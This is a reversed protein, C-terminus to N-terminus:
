KAFTIKGWRSFNELNESYLTSWSSAGGNPTNRVINAYVTMGPTVAKDPILNKMPVAIYITFNDPKIDTKYKGDFQWKGDYAADNTAFKGYEKFKGVPTIALSVFPKQQKSAFFLQLTDDNLVDTSKGIFLNKTDCKETYKIYLTKGDHMLFVNRGSKGPFGFVTRLSRVKYAKDWPANAPDKLDAIRPVTITPLPRNRFQEKKAYEARGRLMPEWLGKILIKLREKELPTKALKQAEKIYGALIKMNKASGLKGWNIDDPQFTHNKFPNAMMAKVDRYEDPYNAPDYSVKQIYEYFAKMPKAANGYWRDFFEDIMVDVNQEANYALMCSLYIELQTTALPYKMELPTEGFWGNVKRKIAEKFFAAIHRYFFTPFFDNYRYVNKADWCPSLYHTWLTLLRGSKQAEKTWGDFVLMERAKYADHYWNAPHLVMCVSLNNELKMGEPYFPKKGYSLTSIGVNPNLKKVRKAIENTWHYHLYNQQLVGKDKYLASCTKCLCVAVNDCEEVPYYFPVGQRRHVVPGRFGHIGNYSNVAEKAFVDFVGPHTMCVQPPLDKDNPFEKRLSHLHLHAKGKYGQAFYEPRHEIFPDKKGKLLKKDLPKWYKLYIDYTNHNTMGFRATNRWRLLFQKLDAPTIKYYYCTENIWWPLYLTRYSTMSPERRISFPKVKLTPMKDYCIGIEAPGYWRVGCGKELFDYTAWLVGLVSSFQNPMKKFHTVDLKRDDFTDAGSLLIGNKLFRVEYEEGKYVTKSIEPFVGVYLNVKGDNIKAAEAATVVPLEAGTILKIHYKLEHVAYKTNIGPNESPIVIRANPMGKEVLLLEKACLTMAAMVALFITMSTKIFRIM